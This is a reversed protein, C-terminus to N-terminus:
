RRRRRRRRMSVFQSAPMWRGDAYVQMHSRLAKRHLWRDKKGRSRVFYYHFGRVPNSMAYESAAAPAKKRSSFYVFAGVAVVAGIGLIWYLTKNSSAPAPTGGPTTTVTTTTTGGPSPQQGSNNVVVTGGPLPPLPVLNPTNPQTPLVQGIM